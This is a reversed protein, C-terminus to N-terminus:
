STRSCYQSWPQRVQPAPAFKGRWIQGRTFFDFGTGEFSKENIHTGRSKLCEAVGATLSSSFRGTSNLSM